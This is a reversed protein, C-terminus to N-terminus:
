GTRLLVRVGVPWRRGAAPSLAVLERAHQRSFPGPQRLDRRKELVLRGIGRGANGLLVRCGLRRSGAHGHTSGGQSDLAFRQHAVNRVGGSAQPASSELALWPDVDEPLRQTYVQRDNVFVTLTSAAVVLRYDAWEGLEAIKESLALTSSARGIEHKALSQGDPAIAIGIGGYLPYIERGAPTSVQCRLEFDGRLPTNFYLGDSGNGTLYDAQGRTLKWRPAPVGLGRLQATSRNVPTWQAFTVEGFSAAMAALHRVRRDWEASVQRKESTQDICWNNRSSSRRAPWNPCSAAGDAAVYEGWRQHLPTDPPQEQVFKQLQQLRAAATVHDKRAIAILAQLATVGRAEDPLSKSVEALRAALEDLKRLQAAARVLEM